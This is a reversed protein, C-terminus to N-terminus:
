LMPLFYMWILRICPVMYLAVLSAGSLRVHWEGFHGTGKMDDFAIM